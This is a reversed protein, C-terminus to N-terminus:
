SQQQDYAAKTVETLIIMQFEKFSRCVFYQHGRQAVQLQFKRQEASQSGIDTKMEIWLTKGLFSIFVFDSVGANVGLAKKKAGITRNWSNNDVHFLMGRHMPLDNHFWQYCQAQLQEETM